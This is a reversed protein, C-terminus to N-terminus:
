EWRVPLGHPGASGIVRRAGGPWTELVVLFEDVSDPTRRTRELSLHALPASESAREGLAAILATAEAQEDPRLYFWM